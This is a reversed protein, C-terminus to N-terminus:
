PLPFSLYTQTRETPLLERLIRRGNSVSHRGEASEKTANQSPAVEQRGGGVHPDRGGVGVEGKKTSKPTSALKGDLRCNRLHGMTIAAVILQQRQHQTRSVIKYAQIHTYFLSLDSISKKIPLHPHRLQKDLRKTYKIDINEECTETCETQYKLQSNNNNIILPPLPPPKATLTSRALRIASTHRLTLAPHTPSNSVTKAPTRTLDTLPWLRPPHARYQSRLGM